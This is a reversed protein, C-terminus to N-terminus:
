RGLRLQQTQWNVLYFTDPAQSDIILRWPYEAQLPDATVSIWTDGGDESKALIKGSNQVNFERVFYEWTM